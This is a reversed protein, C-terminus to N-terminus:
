LVIEEGKETFRVDKIKWQPNSVLTKRLSGFLATQECSSLSSLMRKSNPALRLDVTAIGNKVNVRYGSLNFDGNDRKELIKGIAAAIPEEASVSTTQPVLNQCQSDITYLTVDTTKGVVNPNYTVAKKDSDAKARLRAVSPTPFPSASTNISIDPTPTASAQPTPVTNNGELTPSPTATNNQSVSNSACGSVLTAIIFPFIYRKQLKM